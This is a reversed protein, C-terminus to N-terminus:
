VRSSDHFQRKCYCSICSIRELHSKQKEFHLILACTIIEAEM